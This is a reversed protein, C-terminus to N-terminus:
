DTLQYICTRGQISCIPENNTDAKHCMFVNYLSVGLTKIVIQMYGQRGLAEEM